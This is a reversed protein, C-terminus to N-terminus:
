AANQLVKGTEILRKDSNVDLVKMSKLADALVDRLVKNSNVINKGEKFMVYGDGGDAM